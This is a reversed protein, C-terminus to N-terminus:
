LNTLGDIHNYNLTARSTWATSYIFGANNSVNAFVVSTEGSIETYKEILWESTPKQKGVYLIPSEDDIDQTKYNAFVNESRIVNVLDSKNLGSAHSTEIKVITECSKNVTAISNSNELFTEINRGGVSIFIKDEDDINIM